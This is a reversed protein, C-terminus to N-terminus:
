TFEPPPVTFGDKGKLWTTQEEQGQPFHLLIQGAASTSAQSHRAEEALCCSGDRQFFYKKIYLIRVVAHVAMSKRPFCLIFNM